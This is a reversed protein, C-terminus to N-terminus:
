KLKSLKIGYFLAYLLTAIGIVWVIIIGATGTKPNEPPTKECKSSAFISCSNSGLSTKAASQTKAYVYEYHGDVVCGYCKTAPNDCNTNGSQVTCNTGGTATAAASESTAYVYEKGEGLTCAYCNTTPAPPTCNAEAVITCNTGGTATAAGSKSTAHAYKTESGKTCGYCATPPNTCKATSSEKTCNTGGTATAAAEASTAMTYEKGTDLTCGYCDNSPTPPPTPNCYSSAVASCDSGGTMDAARTVNITEVFKDTGGVSCKYCSTVPAPVECATNDYSTGGKCYFLEDGTFKHTYIESSYLHTTQCPYPCGEVNSGAKGHSWERCICAIQYACAPDLYGYEDTHCIGDAPANYGHDALNY